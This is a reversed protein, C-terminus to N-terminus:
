VKIAQETSTQYRAGSLIYCISGLAAAGPDSLRVRVYPYAAGLEGVDLEVVAFTNDTTTLGFGGSSRLSLDGLLDGLAATGATSCECLYFAIATGAGVGTESKEVTVAPAAGATAGVQIIATLHRFNKMHVYAGDLGGSNCDFPPGANIIKTLKSLYM